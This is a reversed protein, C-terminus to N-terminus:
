VYVVREVADPLILSHTAFSGPSCVQVSEKRCWLHWKNQLSFAILGSLLSPVLLPREGQWASQLWSGRRLLSKLKLDQSSAPKMVVFGNGTRYESAHSANTWENRWCIDVPHRSSALVTSPVSSVATLLVLSHGELNQIILGCSAPFSIPDAPLDRVQAQGRGIDLSLSPRGTSHYDLAVPVWWPLM